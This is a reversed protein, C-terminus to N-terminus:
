IRAQSGGHQFAVYSARGEAESIRMSGNRTALRRGSRLSRAISWSGVVLGVDRAHIRPTVIMQGVFDLAVNLRRRAAFNTCALQHSPPRSSRKTLKGSKTFM